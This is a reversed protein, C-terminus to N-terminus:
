RMFLRRLGGGIGHVGPCHRRLNAMREVTGSAAFNLLPGPVVAESSVHACTTFPRAM